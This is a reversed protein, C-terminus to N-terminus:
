RFARVRGVRCCVLRWDQQDQVELGSLPCCRPRRCMRAPAGYESLSEVHWGEDGGAEVDIHSGFILCQDFGPFGAFTAMVATMRFSMMRAFRGAFSVSISQCSRKIMVSVRPTVPTFIFTLSRARVTV